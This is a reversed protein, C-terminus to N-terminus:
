PLFSFPKSRLVEFLFLANENFITCSIILAHYCIYLYKIPQGYFM